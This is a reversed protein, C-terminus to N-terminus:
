RSVAHAASKRGREPLRQSGALSATESLARPTIAMPRRSSLRRRSPSGAGPQRLAHPQKLSPGRRKTPSCYVRNRYYVGYERRGAFSRAKPPWCSTTARSRGPRLPRSRRLLPTAGRARRLFLTTRSPEHGLPSRRRGVAAERGALGSLLRRPGLPPNGAVAPPACTTKRGPLRPATTSRHRRFSRRNSNCRRRSNTMAPPPAIPNPQAATPRRFARRCAAGPPVNAAGSPRFAAPRRAAVCRSAQWRRTPRPPSATPQNAM